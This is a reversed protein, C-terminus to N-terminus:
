VHFHRLNLKRGSWLEFSSMPVFKRPDQNLIYAVTRLAEGWLYDLLSSNELMSRVMDLLTHNRREDIYNHQLTGLM